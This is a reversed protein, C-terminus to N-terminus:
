CGTRVWPHVTGEGIGRVRMWSPVDGDVFRRATPLGVASPNCCRAGEISYSM